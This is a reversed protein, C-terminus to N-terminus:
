SARQLAARAKEYLVRELGDRRGSVIWLAGALSVYLAVGTAVGLILRVYPPLARAFGFQNQDLWHVALGMVAAACLPRWVAGAFERLSTGLYRNMLGVSVLVAVAM